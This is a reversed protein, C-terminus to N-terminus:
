YMAASSSAMQQYWPALWEKALYNGAIESGAAFVALEALGIEGVMGPSMYNEVTAVVGTQVGISLGTHLPASLLSISPIHEFLYTNILESVESALFTAGAIVLPLPVIKDGIYVTAGPRWAASAGAAVVAMSAPKLVYKTVNEVSM